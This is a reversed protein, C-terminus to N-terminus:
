ADMKINALPFAFKKQIRYGKMLRQLLLTANLKKRAAALRQLRARVVRQIFLLAMRRAVIVKGVRRRCMIARMGSQITVIADAIRKELHQMRFAYELQIVSLREVM